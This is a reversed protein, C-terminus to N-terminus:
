SPIIAKTVENLLPSIRTLSDLFLVALVKILVAESGTIVKFVTTRSNKPGFTFLLATRLSFSVAFRLRAWNVLKGDSSGISKGERWYIYAYLMVFGVIWAILWLPRYGFGWGIFQVVKGVSPDAFMKLVHRHFRIENLTRTSNDIQAVASEIQDWEAESLLNRVKTVYWNRWSNEWETQDTLQEWQLRLAGIRIHDISIGSELVPLGDDSRDVNGLRKSPLQTEYLSLEKEFDVYSVHAGFGISAYSLDVLDSFTCQNFDVSFIQLGVFSVRGAFRSDVIELSSKRAARTRSTRSQAESKCAYTQVYMQEDLTSGDIAMIQSNACVNLRAIKSVSSNSMIFAPPDVGDTTLVTGIALSADFKSDSIDARQVATIDVDKSFESYYTSFQRACNLAFESFKTQYSLFGGRVTDVRWYGLESNEIDITGKIITNEDMVVPIRSRLGDLYLDGDIYSKYLFLGGQDAGRSQTRTAQTIAAALTSADIRRKYLDRGSKIADVLDAKSIERLKETDPRSACNSSAEPASVVHSPQTKTIKRLGVLSPILVAILVVLALIVMPLCSARARSLFSM